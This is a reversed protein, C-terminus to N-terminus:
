QVVASNNGKCTANKTSNGRDADVHGSEKQVPRWGV